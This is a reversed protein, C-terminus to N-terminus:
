KRAHSIGGNTSSSQREAGSDAHRYLAATLACVLAIAAFIALAGTSYFYDLLAGAAAGIVLSLWRLLNTAAQAFHGDALLRGTRILVGTIFTVGPQDAHTQQDGMGGLRDGHRGAVM